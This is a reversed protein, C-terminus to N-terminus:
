LSQEDRICNRCPGSLDCDHHSHHGGFPAPRCGDLACRSVYASGCRRCIKQHRSLAGLRRFLSWALGDIHDVAEGFGPDMVLKHANELIMVELIDRLENDCEATQNYAVPIATILDQADWSNRVISKFKIVAIDMLPQINYKTAINFMKVHTTLLGKVPLPELRTVSSQPAPSSDERSSKKAKGKKRKKKLSLTLKEAQDVAPNAFDVPEPEPTHEDRQGLHTELTEGDKVEAQQAGVELGVDIDIKNAADMSSASTILTPDYDSLYFYDIMLRVADPDDEAIVGDDNSAAKLEIV